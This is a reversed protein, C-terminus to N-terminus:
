QMMATSADTNVTGPHIAVFTFGEEPTVDSAWTLTVAATAWLSVEGCSCQQLLADHANGIQMCQCLAAFELNDEAACFM